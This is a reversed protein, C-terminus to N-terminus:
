NNLDSSGKYVKPTLWDSPPKRTASNQDKPAADNGQQPNAAQQNQQERRLMEQIQNRKQQLEQDADRRQFNQAPRQPQPMPRPMPQQPRTMNPRTLNPRQMPNPRQILSQLADRDERRPQVRLTRVAGKRMLSAALEFATYDTNPNQFNNTGAAIGNLLNQATDIDPDINLEYLLSAVLSSISSTDPSVLVADGFGENLDSNDINIITANKLAEPDFSSEIDALTQTGIVILLGLKGGGRKFLVDQEEFTLGMQGAKVVINLYGNEITYSVKEIEGEKYPFSVVLDGGGDSYTNKVSDIGILSSHEVLPESAAVVSVKKNLQTLGLSLALAAAMSDVSPERGVAVAIKDNKEILDRVKQFNNTDM